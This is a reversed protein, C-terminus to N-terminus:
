DAKLTIENTYGTFEGIARIKEKCHPCILELEYSVTAFKEYILRLPDFCCPCDLETFGVERPLQITKDIAKWNMNLSALDMFEQTNHPSHILLRIRDNLENQNM